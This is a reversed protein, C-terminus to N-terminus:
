DRIAIHEHAETLERRLRTNDDQAKILEDAMSLAAAIAATERDTRSSVAAAESLRENLLCIMREVHEATGLASLTYRKGAIRVERKEKDVAVGKYSRSATILM